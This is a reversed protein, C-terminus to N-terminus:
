PSGGPVSDLAGVVVWRDGVPALVVSIPVPSTVPVVRAWSLVDPGFAALFPEVGVGPELSVVAGTTVPGTANCLATVQSSSGVLGGEYEADARCAVRARAWTEASSVAGTADPYQPSLRSESRAVRWGGDESIAIWVADARAPVLGRTEDLAPEFTLEAEVEARTGDSRATGLQLGTPTPLQGHSAEWESRSGLEARDAASLFGYSTAYDARVEASLFREVAEVPTAAPPGPPEVDSPGRTVPTAPDRGDALDSLGIRPNARDSSRGDDTDVIRPVAVVLFGILGCVAFVAIDRVFRRLRGTFV